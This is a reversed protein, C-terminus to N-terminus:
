RKAGAPESSLPTSKPPAPLPLQEVVWEDHSTNGQFTGAGKAWFQPLQLWPTRTPTADYGQLLLDSGFHLTLFDGPDNGFYLNESAQPNGIAWTVEIPVWGIGDAWFEARAHRLSQDAPLTIVNCGLRMRAPIENERLIAVFLNSIGGCDSEGSQCVVSAREDQNPILVYRCNRRLCRFVRRAFEIDDDGNRYLKWTKLFQRFGPQGHDCTYTSALNQRREEESLPKVPTPPPGAVLRRSCLTVEYTMRTTVGQTFRGTDNPVCVRFVPCKLDSKDQLTQVDGDFGVVQMTATVNQWPLQPPVAACITWETASLQPASLTVTSVVKVHRMPASVQIHWQAPTPSQALCSKPLLLALAFLFGCYFWGSRGRNIQM